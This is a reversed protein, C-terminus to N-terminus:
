QLGLGYSDQDIASRDNTAQVPNAMPDFDENVNSSVSENKYKRYYLNGGLSV